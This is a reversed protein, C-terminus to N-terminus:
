RPDKVTSETEAACGVSGTREVAIVRVKASSGNALSERAIRGAEKKQKLAYHEDSDAQSRDGSPTEYGSVGATGLTNRGSDIVEGRLRVHQGVMSDVAHGELRVWANETIGPISAAARAAEDDPFRVDRLAIEGIGPSVGVCGTLEVVTLTSDGNGRTEDGESGSGCATLLGALVIV